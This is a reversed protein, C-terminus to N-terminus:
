HPITVLACVPADPDCKRQLEWLMAEMEDASSCRIPAGGESSYIEITEPTQMPEIREAVGL